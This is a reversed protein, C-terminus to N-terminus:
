SNKTKKQNKEQLLIIFIFKISNSEKILVGKSLSKPYKPKGASPM